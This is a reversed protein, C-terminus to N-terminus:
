AQSDQGQEKTNLVLARYDALSLGELRVNHVCPHFQEQRCFGINSTNNCVISLGFVVYPLM